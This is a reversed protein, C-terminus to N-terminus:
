SQRVATTGHAAGVVLVVDVVAGPGAIVVVVVAVPGPAVVLVTGPM